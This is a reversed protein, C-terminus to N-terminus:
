APDGPRWRSPHTPRPSCKPCMCNMGHVTGGCRIEPVCSPCACHTGHSGPGIVEFPNVPRPALLQAGVRGDIVVGEGHIPKECKECVPITVTKM